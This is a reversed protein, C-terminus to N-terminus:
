TGDVNKERLVSGFTVHLIKGADFQELLSPWDRVAESLPARGLQASVYYNAKDTKYHERAFTYIECFFSQDVSGVTRLVELYNTGATKLHVLGRTQYM